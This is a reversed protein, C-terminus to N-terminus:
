TQCGTVVVFAHINMLVSFILDLSRHGDNLSHAHCEVIFTVARPKETQASSPNGDKEEKMWQHASETTVCPVQPWKKKLTNIVFRMSFRDDPQIKTDEAM